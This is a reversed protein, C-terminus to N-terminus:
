SFPAILIGVVFRTYLVMYLHLITNALLYLLSWCGSIDINGGFRFYNCRQFESLYRRFELTLNSIKSSTLSSLLNALHNCCRAVAPFQLIPSSFAWMAIEPQRDNDCDGPTLKKSRPTTSFGLNAKPIATIDTMSVSIYTSGSQIAV